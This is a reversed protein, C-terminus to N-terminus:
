LFHEKYYKRPFILYFIVANGSANAAGILTILKGRKVSTAQGCEREAIVKPPKNVTNIAIKDVNFIAHPKFQNFVSAKAVNTSEPSRICFKSYRKVFTKLLKKGAIQNTSWTQPVTNNNKVAM